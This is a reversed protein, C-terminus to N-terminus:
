ARSLYKGSSRYYAAYGPLEKQDLVMGAVRHAAPRLGKFAESISSLPTHCWGVILLIEDSLTALALADVIPLLPSTDM